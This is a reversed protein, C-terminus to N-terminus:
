RDAGVARSQPLRALLLRHPDKATARPVPLPGPADDPPCRAEVWTRAATRLLAPAGFLALMDFPRAVREGRGIRAALDACRADLDHWDGIAM